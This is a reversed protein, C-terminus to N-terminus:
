PDIHSAETAQNRDPGRLDEILYVEGALVRDIGEVVALPSEKTIYGRVGLALARRVYVEERHASLIICPLEPRERRITAALDIGNMGPLALDILAVDVALGPLLTLAEEASRAVATLEFGDYTELLNTLAETVYDNDEVFLVSVM